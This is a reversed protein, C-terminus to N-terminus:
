VFLVMFAKMHKFNISADPISCTHFGQNQGPVLDQFVPVNRLRRLGSRVPQEKPHRVASDAVRVQVAAEFSSRVPMGQDHPMFPCSDDLLYARAEDAQLWSVM